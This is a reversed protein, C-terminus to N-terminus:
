DLVSCGYTDKESPGDKSDAASGGTKQLTMINAGM